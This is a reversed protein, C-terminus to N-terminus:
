ASSCSPAPLPAPRGFAPCGKISLPRIAMPLPSALCVRLLGAGPEALTYVGSVCSPSRVLPMPVAMLHCRVHYPLCLVYLVGGPLRQQAPTMIAGLLNAEPDCAIGLLHAAVLYSGHCAPYYVHGYLLAGLHEVSPFTGDPEVTPLPCSGCLTVNVM